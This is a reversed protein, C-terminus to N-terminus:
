CEKGVRREESRRRGMVGALLVKEDCLHTALATVVAADMVATFLTQTDVVVASGVLAEQQRVAFFREGGRAGLDLIRKIASLQHTNNAPDRSLFVEAERWLTPADACETVIM